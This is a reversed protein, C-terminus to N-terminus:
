AAPLEIWAGSQASSARIADSVRQNALADAFTPTAPASPEIARGEILDRFREALRTYAPLELWTFVERPDTSAEPPAPLELDPPVEVVGDSRDDALHVAGGELQV